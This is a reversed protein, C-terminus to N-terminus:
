IQLFIYFFFVLLPFEALNSDKQWWSFFLIDFFTIWPTCLFPSCVYMTDQIPVNIIKLEWDQIQVKSTNYHIKWLDKFSNVLLSAHKILVENGEGRMSDLAEFRGAESNLSLCYWHNGWKKGRSAEELGSIVGINLLLLFYFKLLQLSQFVLCYSISFITTPM